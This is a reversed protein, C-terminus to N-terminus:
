AKTSVKDSGNMFFSIGGIEHASDPGDKICHCWAPYSYNLHMDGFCWFEDGDELEKFQIWFEKAPTMKPKEREPNNIVCQITTTGDSIAIFGKGDAWTTLYDVMMLELFARPEMGQEIAENVKDQFTVVVINKDSM